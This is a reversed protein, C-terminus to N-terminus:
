VRHTPNGVLIPRRRVRSADCTACEGMPCVMTRTVYGEFTLAHWVMRIYPRVLYYAIRYWSM